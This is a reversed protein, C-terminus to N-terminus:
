VLQQKKAKSGAHRAAACLARDAFPSAHPRFSM